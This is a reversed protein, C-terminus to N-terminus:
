QSPTHHRSSSRSLASHGRLYSPKADMGPRGKRDCYMRDGSIFQKLMGEDLRATENVEPAINVLRNLTM